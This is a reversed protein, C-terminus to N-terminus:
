NTTLSLRVRLCFLSRHYKWMAKAKTSNGFAAGDNFVTASGIGIQIFLWGLAIYGLTKVLLNTMVRTINSHGVGHWTTAHAKGHTWKNYAIATTGLLIAPLGFLFIITQHRELGAAKSKPHSTPQLTLIGPELNIRCFALGLCCIIHSVM